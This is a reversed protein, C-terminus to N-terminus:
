FGLSHPVTLIRCPSRSLSFADISVRASLTAKLCLSAFLSLSLSLPSTRQTGICAFHPCICTCRKTQHRTWRCGAVCTSGPVCTCLARKQTRACVRSVCHWYYGIARTADRTASELLHQITTPECGRCPPRTKDLLPQSGAKRACLSGCPCTHVGRLEHRARAGCSRPRPVEKERGRSGRSRSEEGSREM